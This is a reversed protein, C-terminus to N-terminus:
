VSLFQNWKILMLWYRPYNESNTKWSTARGTSRGFLYKRFIYIYVLYSYFLLSLLLKRQLCDLIFFRLNLDFLSESKHGDHGVLREQMIVWIRVLCLVLQLLIRYWSYKYLTSQHQMFIDVLMHLVSTFASLVPTLWNASYTIGISPVFRIVNTLDWHLLFKSPISFKFYFNQVCLIM